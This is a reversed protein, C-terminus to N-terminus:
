KLVHWNTPLQKINKYTLSAFVNVHNFQKANEFTEWLIVLVGSKASNQKLQQALAFKNLDRSTLIIIGKAYVKKQQQQQQMLGIFLWQMHKKYCDM